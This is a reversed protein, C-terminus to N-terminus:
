GAAATKRCAPCECLSRLRGYTYIGSDHGDSWRFNLAYRGITGSSVAHVDGPVSAPDLRRAGTWEDVCLACPCALRLSRYAYTSVHADDWTIKLAAPGLPEITEPRSTAEAMGASVIAAQRALEGAVQRFARAAPAEPSRTVVPEGADGGLVTEPDLPVSGLFPLGLEKAAAKGGGQKFIATTEGCKPCEFGSMNEVVGLIPVNTQQFLKLGRKAVGLAVEQPTMVIVAGTLPATQVLTLQVDGTGPPLDVLLYDLIGWDVSGLFQRILQTAIPGRWIVPTSADALFGMSMLKIGQRQLPIMQQKDNMAPRETAGFMTPISPGYVDADLIGVSAGARALAAALNTTTTSKGVGGKGSAIAILNKVGTLIPAAPGPRGRVNATMQISVTKVGSLARVRKEAEGKLQEKVPCAPTTLEITFAVDGGSTKLDKVFGLSVIDRHLDPDQVAKLANLVDADSPM